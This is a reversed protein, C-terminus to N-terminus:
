ANAAKVMYSAVFKTWSVETDRARHKKIGKRLLKGLEERTLEPDRLADRFQAVAMSAFGAYDTNMPQYAVLGHYAIDIEELVDRVDSKITNEM